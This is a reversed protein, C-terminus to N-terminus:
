FPIVYMDTTSNFYKIVNLLILNAEFTEVSKLYLQELYVRLIQSRSISCINKITIIHLFYRFFVVKNQDTLKAQEMVQELELSFTESLISTVDKITCSPKDSKETGEVGTLWQWPYMLPVTSANNGIGLKDLEGSKQAFWFKALWETQVSVSAQEGGAQLSLHLFKTLILNYKSHLASIVHCKIVDMYQFTVCKFTPIQYLMALLTDIQHHHKTFRKSIVDVEKIAQSYMCVYM